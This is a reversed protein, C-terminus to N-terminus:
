VLHLGLFLWLWCMVAIALICKLNLLMKGDEARAVRHHDRTKLSIYRTCEQEECPVASKRNEQWTCRAMDFTVRSRESPSELALSHRAKGFCNNYSPIQILWKTRPQAINSGKPQNANINCRRASPQESKAYIAAVTSTPFLSLQIQWHKGRKPAVFTFAMEHTKSQSDSNVCTQTSTHFRYVSPM